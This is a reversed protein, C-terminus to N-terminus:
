RIIKLHTSISVLSMICLTCLPGSSCMCPLTMIFEALYLTMRYLVTNCPWNSGSGSCLIRVPLVHNAPVILTVFPAFLSYSFISFATYIVIANDLSSGKQVTSRNIFVASPLGLYLNLGVIIQSKIFLFHTIVASTIIKSKRANKGFKLLNNIFPCLEDKACHLALTYFLAAQHACLFFGRIVAVELKIVRESVALAFEIISLFYAFYCLFLWCQSSKVKNTSTVKEMKGSGSNWRITSIGLTESVKLQLNLVDLNARSVM